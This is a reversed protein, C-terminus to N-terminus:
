FEDDYNIKGNTLRVYDVSGTGQFRFVIGIIKARGIGKYVNYVLKNDIFIQAKGHHSEIKLPVYKEFDVGFASLDHKKGSAEYGAFYMDLDSVCGKSSLPIWIATGKCLIYVTSLRCAAAGESYNNKISTEFTFDNSYIEGFDTVNTYVVYPPTPQMAINREKIKEPSLSLKGDVMADKKEYYVPVPQKEVIPLWGNSEVFLEHQKVIKGGVILKAYYFDPFYYISTHQRDNKSVNVRLHRDWSQQIAVSDYPSKTADFDFVVSNPLGSTIVKKSSFKYDKAVIPPRSHETRSAMIVILLIGVLTLVGLAYPMSRFHKRLPQPKVQAHEVPKGVPVFQMSFVRFNEYGLFQVLTDMTYTNPLSDYKVKGWIRKLTVHSVSAGTKERIKESLNIFDQNKWNASDGWGTYTEYQKILETILLEQAPM